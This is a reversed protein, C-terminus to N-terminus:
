ESCISRYEMFVGDDTSASKYLFQSRLLEKVSDCLEWEVTELQNAFVSQCEDLRLLSDTELAGAKQPLFMIEPYKLQRINDIFEQTFKMEGTRVDHISYIQAVLAHNRSVPSGRYSRNEPIAVSPVLLVVPRHKARVVIFEENSRLSPNALPTHDFKDDGAAVIKFEKASTAGLDTTNPRWFELHEHPFYTHTWFIRGFRKEKDTREIKRYFDNEYPEDFFVPM